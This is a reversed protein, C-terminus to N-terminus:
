DDHVYRWVRTASDHEWGTWFLISPKRLFLSCGEEGPYYRLWKEIRPVADPLQELIFELLLILLLDALRPSWRRNPATWAAIFAGATRLDQLASLRAAFPTKRSGERSTSPVCATGASMSDGDSEEAPKL